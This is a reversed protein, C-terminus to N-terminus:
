SLYFHFSLGMLIQAYHMHCMAAELMLLQKRVRSSDLPHSWM